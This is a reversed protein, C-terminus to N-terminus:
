QNTLPFSCSVKSLQTKYRRLETEIKKHSKVLESFKMAHSIPTSQQTHTDETKPQPLADHKASPSDVVPTSFDILPTTTDSSIM